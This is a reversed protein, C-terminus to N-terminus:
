GAAPLENCADVMHAPEELQLILVAVVEIGEQAGLGVLQNGLGIELVFHPHVVDATEAVVAGLGALVVRFVVHEIDFGAIRLM